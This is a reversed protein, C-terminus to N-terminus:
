QVGGLQLALAFRNTYGLEENGAYSYDILAGEMLGGLDFQIGIGGTFYKRDFGVRLAINDTVRVEAGYHFQWQEEQRNVEEKHSADVALVVRNQWFRGALGIRKEGSITENTLKGSLNRVMFGLSYHEDINYLLGLDLAEGATSEGVSSDMNISRFNVGYSMRKLLKGALSLTYMSDVWENARKEKLEELEVSVRQYSVGVGGNIFSLATPHVFVLYDLCIEAVNFPNSHMLGVAPEEVQVMGAPNWYASNVDDAVAVFAGGMAQPRAGMQLDIYSGGALAATACLLLLVGGCLISPCVRKTEFMRM